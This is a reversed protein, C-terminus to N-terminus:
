SGWEQDHISERLEPPLRRRAVRLLSFPLRDLRERLEESVLDALMVLVLGGAMAALWGIVGM